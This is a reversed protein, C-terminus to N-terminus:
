NNQVESQNNFITLQAQETIDLYPNFRQLTGKPFEKIPVAKNETSWCDSRAVKTKFHHKNLEFWKRLEPTIFILYGDILNTKSQNEWVYAVIDAQTTYFWGPKNNEIVSITEILIDSFKYYDYSRSKSEIKPQSLNIIGDIGKRQIEPNTQFKINQISKVQIIRGIKELLKKEWKTGNQLCDKWSNFKMEGALGDKV